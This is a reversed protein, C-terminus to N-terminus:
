SGGADTSACALAPTLWLPSQCGTVRRRSPRSIASTGAPQKVMPDVSRCSLFATFEQSRKKPLPLHWTSKTCDSSRRTFTAKVMWEPDALGFHGVPLIAGAGGCVVLCGISPRGPGPLGDRPTLCSLEALIMVGTKWGLGLPFEGSATWITQDVRPTIFEIKLSQDRAPLHGGIHSRDWRSCRPDTCEVQASVDRFPDSLTYAGYERALM